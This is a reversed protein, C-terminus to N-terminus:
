LADLAAFLRLSKGGFLAPVADGAWATWVDLRAARPEDGPALAAARVSATERGGHEAAENAAADVINRMVIERVAAETVRAAVTAELRRSASIADAAPACVGRLDLIHQRGV